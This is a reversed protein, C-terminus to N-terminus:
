DRHPAAGDNVIGAPEVKKKRLIICAWGLMNALTLSLLPLESRRYETIAIDLSSELSKLRGLASSKRLDGLPDSTKIAAVSATAAEMENQWIPLENRAGIILYAVVFINLLLLTLAIAKM